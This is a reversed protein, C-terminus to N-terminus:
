EWKIFSIFHIGFHFAFLVQLQNTAKPNKKWKTENRKKKRPQERTCKLQHFFFFFIFIFVDLIWWIFLNKFIFVFFFFKLVTTSKDIQVFSSSFVVVVVFIMMMMLVNSDIKIWQSNRDSQIKNWITWFVLYKTEFFFIEMWFCWRIMMM